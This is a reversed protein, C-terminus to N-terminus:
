KANEGNWHRYAQTDAPLCLPLCVPLCTFLCAPLFAQWGALFFAQRNTPRNTVFLYLEKESTAIGVQPSRLANWGNSELLKRKQEQCKVTEIGTHRRAPLCARPCASQRAPSRAPPCSHRGSPLFSHRGTRLDSLRSAPLWAKKVQTAANPTTTAAQPTKSGCKQRAFCGVKAGLRCPLASLM